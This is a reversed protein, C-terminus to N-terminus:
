DARHILRGERWCARVRARDLAGRLSRWDQQLLCLDAPADPAPLLPGRQPQTLPATFLSLAEEPSLAEAEGLLVGGASRRTVAAQMAAWPDLAGFPADSGAALPVGATIFGRLRYLWPQDQAEVERAYADGREAIFQPQTIVRLKLRAIWDMLEPPTVAAHEIRDGPQAGAEELAALAFSLDTRTVCHFAAARGAAHAARIQACLVDFGPLDHEHLHFKHAGVVLGPLARQADLSADGMLMLKQLLEGRAQADAFHAFDDPSNHPTADCLAVVGRSALERSLAHLPPRQRPVRARLWLDADYFRGSLRGQVREGPHDRDADRLGIERLACRNLIWLRGSRHQVRLPRDPVCDQLFDADLEGAVSEHYGIGRLWGEGERAAERLRTALQGANMVQPPGCVIAARAAAASQLHLHHDRLGAVMLGGQADLVEEAPQPPLQAALAVLRAGEIRLDVRRADVLSANRILM